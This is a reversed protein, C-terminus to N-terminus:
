EDIYIFTIQPAQCCIQASPSKWDLYLLHKGDSAYIGDKAVAYTLVGSFLEQVRGDPRQVCLQAHPVLTVTGKKETQVACPVNGPGVVLKPGKNRQFLGALLGQPKPILTQYETRLFYLSGDETQTPQLYSYKMSEDILLEQVAGTKAHVSLIAGPGELYESNSPVNVGMMRLEQQMQAQRRSLRPEYVALGVSECLVLDPDKQSFRPRRERSQGETLIRPRRADKEMVGIHAEGAWGVSVALRGTADACFSEYAYEHDSIVVSDSEQLGNKRYL